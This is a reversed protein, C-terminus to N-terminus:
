PSTGAAGSTGGWGTGRLLDLTIRALAEPASFNMAHGAGPVSVLRGQPLLATLERAWAEPVIPDRTGRAVVAPTRLRHLKDEVPDRLAYLCTHLARRAGCEAYSTILPPALSPREWPVDRLLRAAQTLLSRAGRDFTPGNLVVPGVLEPAHVALDVVIQCGISNAVLATPGRGTARLWDALALSLQRVDLAQDPGPTRGFGPLDVAVTRTRPALARAFPLWYRYSCGLGHVCVVEPADYPGLAAAHVRTGAAATFEHSDWRSM